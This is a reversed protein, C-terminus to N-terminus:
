ETRLARIPDISVARRAPLVAALLGILVLALAASAFVAPNGPRVEFLFSRISQAAFFSGVGGVVVGVALLVAVQRMVLLFVRMRTAGLAMRVGIERTRQTVSWALLGYIGIGSLLLGLVAFFGSLASLLQERAISDNYIDTFRVADSLPATPAVEDVVARQATEAAAESRAHMTLYLGGLRPGLRASIPLYVIPAKEQVLTFYKSDKVIGVVQCIHQTQGPDGFENPMQRLMQGMANQKPFFRAAAAQNLVCSDADTEDNRLDRGAVFPTGVTEFFGRGVANAFTGVAQAKPGADAAVFRGGDGMDFLPPVEAVSASIIGPMSNMRAIMRRYLPLLAAGKQPIRNFDTIYFYVDKTRYGSDETRLRVVTSGLLAAVVVLMLSLAVQFPVFFRRAGSSGQAVRTQTGRLGGEV